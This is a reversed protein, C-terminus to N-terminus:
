KNRFVSDPTASLIPISDGLIAINYDDVASNVRISWVEAVAPNRREVLLLTPKTIKKESVAIRGAPDLLDVNLWEEENEGSVRLAVEKVGAPVYFYMRGPTLNLTVAGSAILGNGPRNSILQAGHPSNNYNLQWVGTEDAKFRITKDPSDATIKWNGAAKGSPSHLTFSNNLASRGIASPIVTIAVEDGAKAYQLFKSTFRVRLPKVDQGAAITDSAPEIHNLDVKASKLPGKKKSEEMASALDYTKGSAHTITGSLKELSCFKWEDFQFMRHDPVPDIVTLNKVHLNGLAGVAYGPEFVIAGRNRIGTNDLVSDSINIAYGDASKARAHITFEKSGKIKCNEINVVGQVGPTKLDLFAIGKKNGEIVCNRITVSIPTSHENLYALWFEIGNGGNNIFRCNEVVCNVLKENWRNPEFDIGSMPATGSTNSFESNRILLNEASIVSMGQRHNDLCKVNDVTMNKVVNVYIGDGGSARFTLGDIKINSSSFVALTHRWESKKYKASDLYDKKNMTLIGQGRITINKASRIMFLAENLDHFKGPMAKIEAGDEFVIELNSPINLQGSVIWPAPRKNIILTKAGSNLANQLAERMDEISTVWWEACAVENKGSKVDAIEKSFDAGQLSIAVAFLCFFIRKYRM